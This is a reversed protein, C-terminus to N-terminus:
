DDPYLDITTPGPPAEDIRLVGDSDTTGRRTDGNPFTATCTWDSLVSGLPDRIVFEIWDQFQLLSSEAHLGGV